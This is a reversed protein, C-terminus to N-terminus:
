SLNRRCAAEQEASGILILNTGATLKEDPSPLITTEKGSEELAIVTCGTRDRIGSNRLTKGNMSAPVPSRFVNMGESLFISAKQELINMLINAGVSANSVVFDAGATYLQEVNEERNARSVIRVHPNLRRCALTFFINAGDDNTTVILGKAEEIAAQQLISRSTADGIVAIHESCHPNPAQDVLIFPVPRRELFAAAACGIRGHGIILVLDEESKEGTVKELAELHEQTGVVVIVTNEGLPTEPVPISFDGREWIGVVALGTRERVSAQALTLGAFPTGHVPLEAVLLKGFSDLVHALAGQTTARTALDRGLIRKLPIVQDAGALRLFEIHEPEEVIAAIPTKCLSRATLIINTNDTDGMNAILYRASEIRLKKLVQPDAPSGYVVKTGEQEDLRLAEEYNETVFFFPIDQSKLKRTLARTVPDLGFIVVHGEMEPPVGHAPRYRMRNEIWPALFLSIMGFPLFILLFIVGSITVIASFLRGPDSEFTIDGYGLTTMATIVWYFGTIFSHEEGELRRQLYQFLLSYSVILATLFAFYSLLVKLNQRARGRLFYAMESVVFKM